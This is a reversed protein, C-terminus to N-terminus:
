YKYGRAIHWDRGRKSDEDEGSAYMEPSNPYKPSYEDKKEGDQSGKVLTDSMTQKGKEIFEKIFVPNNALGLQKALACFEESCTDFYRNAIKINEDYKDGLEQKLAAEGAEKSAIMDASMQDYYGKVIAEFSQKPVGMEYAVQRLAKEMNENKPFVGDVEPLEYGDPNEPCGTRQYFARIEEASSEPTPMKVRSGLTKELETYGKIADDPTKWGKAEVIEKSGEGYWQTPEPSNGAPEAGLLSDQVEDVM